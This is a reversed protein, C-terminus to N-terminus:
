TSLAYLFGVESINGTLMSVPPSPPETTPVNKDQAKTETMNYRRLQCYLDCWGFPLDIEDYKRIGAILQISTQPWSACIKEEPQGSQRPVRRDKESPARKRSPYMVNPPGLGATARRAAPRKTGLTTRELTSTRPPWFPSASPTQPESAYLSEEYKALTGQDAQPSSSAYTRPRACPGRRPNRPTLAAVALLPYRKHLLRWGSRRPALTNQSFDCWKEFQWDHRPLIRM